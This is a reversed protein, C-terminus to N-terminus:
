SETSTHSKPPNVEAANVAIPNEADFRQIGIKQVGIIAAPCLNDGGPPLPVAGATFGFEFMIGWWGEHIKQDKLLLTAIEKNSFAIQKTEPM